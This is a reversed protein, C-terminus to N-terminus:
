KYNAQKYLVDMPYDTIFTITKGNKVAEAVKDLSDTILNIRSLFLKLHQETPISAIKSQNKLPAVKFEGYM